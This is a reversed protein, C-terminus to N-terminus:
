SRGRDPGGQWLYGVLLRLRYIRGSKYKLERVARVVAPKIRDYREVKGNHRPTYLTIRQHRTALLTQAFAGARYCDGDDTVIREIPTIGHAASLTRARPLFAIATAAEEDSLAKTRLRPDRGPRQQLSCGVHPQRRRWPSSSTSPTFAAAEVTQSIRRSAPISGAGSRAELVHASKRREGASASGAQSKKPVTVRVPARGYTNATIACTPRRIRIRPEAARGVAEHTACAVLFRTMSRSSTLQRARNRVRSRSPFNGARNSVTRALAPISTTSLPTRIGRIFATM